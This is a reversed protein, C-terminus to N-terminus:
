LEDPPEHCSEATSRKSSNEDPGLQEAMKTLGWRVRNKATSLSCNMTVAIERFKLGGFFRLRLADAQNEPLRDLLANLREARETALLRDAPSETSWLQGAARPSDIPGTEAPTEGRHVSVGRGQQKYIRHCQNLLITWLWTRFSYQSDYTHLSKFANLLTEQVAEEAWERRGLRSYALRQLPGHYRGVLEAFRERDGSLVAAIVIGDPEEAAASTM